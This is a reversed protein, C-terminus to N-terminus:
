NMTSPPGRRYRPWEAMTYPDLKGMDFAPAAWWGFPYPVLYKGSLARQGAAREAALAALLERHKAAQTDLMKGRRNATEQLFIIEGRRWWFGLLFGALLIAIAYLFELNTM